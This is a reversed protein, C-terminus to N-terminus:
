EPEQSDAQSRRKLRRSTERQTEYSGWFFNDNTLNLDYVERKNKSQAKSLIVEEAPLFSTRFGEFVDRDEPDIGEYRSYIDPISKVVFQDSPDGLSDSSIKIVFYVVSVFITLAIISLFRGFNATKPSSKISVTRSSRTDVRTM